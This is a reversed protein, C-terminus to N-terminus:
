ADDGDRVEVLRISDVMGARLDALSLSLRDDAFRVPVDFDFGATIRDGPAPPTDFDLLGTLTDVQWGDPREVGAVAVRVSGAVPKTIRRVQEVGATAYRKVLAFRTTQGDGTGVVQDLPTPTLDVPGSRWDTWDQFRFAFARGQRARFFALLTALDAEARIAPALDYEARAQAWNVNRQEYGSATEIVDTSFAPGGSSGFGITAPLRVDHFGQMADEQATQPSAFRVYGDRAVQSQAWVFVRDYGELLALDAARDIAAWQDRDEPRLVFGAFYDSDRRDYGLDALARDLGRQRAWWDARTVHTYDELQLRDFAPAAWGDPLNLRALMPATEDLVQPTYFLMLIQAGPHAARVRDGLANTAAALRAGLWDLYHAQDATPIETVLQHRPEPVPRGTEATYAQTASADYIAPRRVGGLGSWWWPEGIQARVPAGAAAQLASFALMVDGVYTMADANAPSLLTSPPDWGTLARSGDYARQAWAGPAHADFLEFSVSAITELGLGQARAFLDAFWAQAPQNLPRAPDVLFRGESADWALQFYHSMGVYINLAGRYGLHLGDRLLREPTQSLVDDYGTALALGHPKVGTDGLALTRGTGSVAIESLTLTADAPAPLPADDGPDYGPPVASIFLRDIRRPDVPDAQDPLVFGGALRDMDLTVWADTPTGDAYNWLRVYWTRPAGAADRGEITLTPGFVADLGRLGTSRWRFRLTLGSYDRATEYALLPHDLRDESWWILGALDSRRYFVCRLVLTDAGETVLSAMMPRPFNVTWFAPDFRHCFTRARQDEAKALWYM